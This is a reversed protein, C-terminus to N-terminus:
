IKGAGGVGFISNMRYQFEWTITQNEQIITKLKKKLLVRSLSFFYLSNGKVAICHRAVDGM